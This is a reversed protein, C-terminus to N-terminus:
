SLRAGKATDFEKGGEGTGKSSALRGLGLRFRYKRRLQVFPLLCFPLELFSELSLRATFADKAVPEPQWAVLSVMACETVGVAPSSRGSVSRM